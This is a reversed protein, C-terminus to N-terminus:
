IWKGLNLVNKSIGIGIQPQILEYPTEQFPLFVLDREWDLTEIRPQAWSLIIEDRTLAAQIVEIGGLAEEAPLTVPHYAPPLDSILETEPFAGETMRCGLRLFIRPSIKFAPIWFQSRTKRPEWSPPPGAEPQCLGEAPLRFYDPPHYLCGSVGSLCSFFPKGTAPLRSCLFLLGAFGLRAPNGGPGASPAFCGAAKRPRRCTGAAIRAYPPFLFSILIKKRKGTSNRRGLRLLPPHCPNMGSGTTGADRSPISPPM